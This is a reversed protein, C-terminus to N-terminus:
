PRVEKGPLRMLGEVHLVVHAAFGASETGVQRARERELALGCAEDADPADVIRSATYRGEPLWEGGPRVMAIRAMWTRTPRSM